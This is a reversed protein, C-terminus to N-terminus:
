SKKGLVIPKNQFKDLDELEENTLNDIRFAKRYSQPIKKRELSINELFPHDQSLIVLRGKIDFKFIKPSENRSDNSFLSAKMNSRSLIPIRFQSKKPKDQQIHNNEEPSSQSPISFESSSVVDSFSSISSLSNNLEQNRQIQKEQAAIRQKVIGGGPIEDTVPAGGNQLTFKIVKTSNKWKGTGNYTSNLSKDKPITRMDIPM